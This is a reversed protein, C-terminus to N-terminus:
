MSPGTIEPAFRRKTQNAASRAKSKMWNQCLTAIVYRMIKPRNQQRNSRVTITKATQAHIVYDAQQAASILTEATGDWGTALLKEAFTLRGANKRNQSHRQRPTMLQQDPPRQKNLLKILEEELRELELKLCKQGKGYGDNAWIVGREDHAAFLFHADCRGTFVDIHWGFRCAGRGIPGALIHQEVEDREKANLSPQRGQGDKHPVTGEPSSYCYEGWCISTRKGRKGTRRHLYRQKGKVIEAFFSREDPGRCKHNKPSLVIKNLHNAHTPDAIYRIRGSLSKISKRKSLTHKVWKIM